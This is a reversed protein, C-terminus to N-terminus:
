QWGPTPFSIIEWDLLGDNTDVGKERRQISEGSYKPPSQVWSRDVREDLSINKTADTQYEVGDLITSLEIGDSLVTDRGNTLVIIDSTLSIQFEGPKCESINFLNPVKLNDLDIADFQSVFEWDANSLDISTSVSKSHDYADQALVLFTQPEFPYNKEGPRGPFQFAYTIGFISGEGTWDGGPLGLVDSSYHSCYARSSSIRFIQMGDLYKVEDTNNYLEIYQDFFFFINNAPGVSYIENICIGTSSIPKAFISDSVAVGSIVEIDNLNGVVLVNPINPHAKRATIQYVSSPIETLNMIGNEDTSEIRTGYESILIMEANVLPSYSEISDVLSTNWMVTVELKAEGDVQVPAKEECSFLITASLLLLLVKKMKKNSLYTIM